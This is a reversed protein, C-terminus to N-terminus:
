GWRTSSRPPARTHPSCLPSYRSFFRVPHTALSNHKHLHLLLLHILLLHAIAVIVTLWGKSGGRATSWAVIQDLYGRTNYALHHGRQRTKLRFAKRHRVAPMHARHPRVARVQCTRPGTTTSDIQAPACPAYPARLYSETDIHV